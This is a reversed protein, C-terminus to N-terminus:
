PKVPHKLNARRMLENMSSLVEKHIRRVAQRFTEGKKKRTPIPRGIWHTLKVPFPLLGLGFFFPLSFWYRRLIRIREKLLFRSTLYAENIGHCYSPLIPVKMKCAVAAFGYRREWPIRRMGPHTLLAEYIGGPTVLVLHGKKLLSIANRHNANLAGGKLVFDRVYPLQFLFRAGLARPVRGLKSFIEIVLLFVHFPLVGHNMVLLAPGRAPINEWGLVEYAFYRKIFEFYPGIKRLFRLSLHSRSDLYPLSTTKRM